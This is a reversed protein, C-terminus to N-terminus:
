KKYGVQKRQNQQASQKDKQIFYNLVQEIGDFRQGHSRELEELREALEHYTLSWQRMMVFARMISINIQIALKSKLVSSLMAIGQETFAFIGYRTGGWSSMVFQSTLNKMEVETLEFMFDEPFRDIIRRVAQKLVRTEVEYMKALEYDLIVRKGRIEYISNKITTLEM